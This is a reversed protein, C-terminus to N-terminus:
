KKKSKRILEKTWSQGIERLEARTFQSVPYNGGGVATIFRPTRPILIKRKINAKM